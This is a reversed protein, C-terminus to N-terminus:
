YIHNTDTGENILHEKLIQNDENEQFAINGIAVKYNRRQYPKKYDILVYQLKQNLLNSYGLAQLLSDSKPSKGSFTGIKFNESLIQCATLIRITDGNGKNIGIVSRYYTAKTTCEKSDSISLIEIETGNIIDSKEFEFNEIKISELSSNSLKEYFVVFVILSILIPLVILTTKSKM